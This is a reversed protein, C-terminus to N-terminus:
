VDKLELEKKKVWLRPPQAKTTTPPTTTTKKV